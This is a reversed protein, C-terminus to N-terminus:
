EAGSQGTMAGKMVPCLARQRREALVNVRRLIVGQLTGDAM